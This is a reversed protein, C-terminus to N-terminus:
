DNEESRCPNLVINLKSHPANNFSSIFWHSQFKHRRAPERWVHVSLSNKWLNSDADGAIKGTRQSWLACSFIVLTIFYEKFVAGSKSFPRALSCIGFLYRHSPLCSHMHSLKAPPSAVSFLSGRSQITKEKGVVGGNRKWGPLHRLLKCLRMNSFAIRIFFHCGSFKEAFEYFRGNLADFM